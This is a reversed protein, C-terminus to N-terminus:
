FDDAEMEDYNECDQKMMKYATRIITNTFEEQDLELLFDRFDQEENIEFPHNISNEELAQEIYNDVITKFDESSFIKELVPTYLFALKILNEHEFDQFKKFIRQNSETPLIINAM